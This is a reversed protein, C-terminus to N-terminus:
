KKVEPMVPVVSVPSVPKNIGEIDYISEKIVPVDPIPEPVPETIVPQEQIVVPQEPM